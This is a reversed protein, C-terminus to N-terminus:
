HTTLVDLNKGKSFSQFAVINRALSKHEITVLGPVRVTPSLILYPNKDRGSKYADFKIERIIHNTWKLMKQSATLKNDFIDVRICPNQDKQKQSERM